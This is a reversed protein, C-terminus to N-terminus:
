GGILAALAVDLERATTLARMPEIVPAPVRSPRLYCTLLKRIWRAAREQGREEAALALLARLDAVVV